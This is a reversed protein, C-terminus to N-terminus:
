VVSRVLRRDGLVEVPLPGDGLRQGGQGLVCFPQADDATRRAVVVEVVLQEGLQDGLDGLLDNACATRASRSSGAPRCRVQTCVPSVGVAGSVTPPCAAYASMTSGAPGNM